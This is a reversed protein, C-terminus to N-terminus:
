ATINQDGHSFFFWGQCCRGRLRRAIAPAELVGLRSEAFEHAHRVAIPRLVDRQMAPIRHHNDVCVFEFPQFARSGAFQQDLSQLSRWM